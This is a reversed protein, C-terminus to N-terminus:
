PRGAKNVEELLRHAQPSKAEHRVLIDTPSVQHGYFAHNLSDRVAVVSGDLAVGGYLGKSRSFSILDASLNATGASAGLGVPGVAVGVDAGLKFSNTLFSSVGRDTMALIVVDSAQGGIQLGFSAGGLTYFAPGEWTTTKERVLILGTGGSAGVIFAGKLLDPIIFVGKAKKLLERCAELNPDNMFNQIVWYAKEVVREAEQRDDALSPVPSFCLFCAIALAFISLTSGVKKFLRNKKM